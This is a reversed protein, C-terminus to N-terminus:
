HSSNLRTSKRDVTCWPLLTDRQFMFGVGEPHGKVEEGRLLVQGRTPQLLGTVARLVTSKGCGSPGVVAVFEERGVTLSCNSVVLLPEQGSREYSIDVDRLVVSAIRQDASLM